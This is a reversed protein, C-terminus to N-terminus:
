DSESDAVIKRDLCLFRNFFFFLVSVYNKEKGPRARLYDEVLIAQADLYFSNLGLTANDLTDVVGDVITALLRNFEEFSRYWERDWHSHTVIHLSISDAASVKRLASSDEYVKLTERHVTEEKERHVNEEKPVPKKAEVPAVPCSLPIPEKKQEEKEKREKELMKKLRAIEEAQGRVDKGKLFARALNLFLLLKKKKEKVKV